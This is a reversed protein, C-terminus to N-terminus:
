STREIEEPRGLIKRSNKDLSIRAKDAGFSNPNADRGIAM